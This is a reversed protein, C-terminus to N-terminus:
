LADGFATKLRYFISTGGLFALATWFLALGIDLGEFPLAFISARMLELFPLVPNLTMLPMFKDPIMDVPYIIPTLYFWVFLTIQILHQIDRIFVTISSILLGLGVTFLFFATYIVPFALAKLTLQATFALYVLFILLGITNVFFSTIIASTPLIAVPFQVKTILNAHELLVASCRAIGEQFCIWPFIGILFFLVFSSTGVELANLKIKLVTNFVFIYVLIQSLPTIVVWLLGGASGAFRGKLERTFFEKILVKHSLLLNFWQIGPLVLQEIWKM